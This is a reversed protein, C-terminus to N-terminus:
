ALLERGDIADFKIPATGESANLSMEGAYFAGSLVYTKGNGLELTVTEDTIAQIDQLALDGYDTIEIDFGWASWAETHGHVSRDAGLVVTRVPGGVRVTISGRLSVQRGGVKLYAVGGVPVAM